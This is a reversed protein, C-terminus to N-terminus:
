GKMLQVCQPGRAEMTRASGYSRGFVVIAAKASQGSHRASYSSGFFRRKWAWGV